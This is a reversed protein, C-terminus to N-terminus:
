RCTATTSRTSRTTAPWSTLRRRWRTPGAAGGFQYCAAVAVDMAVPGALSDGFDLVGTVRDATPWCTTATSTPTFSRADRRRAPAARRVAGRVPRLLQGPGRAPGDGPRSAPRPAPAAAPLEAPGVPPHPERGPSSFSRLAQNLRALTAGIDRRLAATAPARASCRGELYTTMRVLRRGPAARRPRRARPHGAARAPRARDQELHLLLATQFSAQRWPRKRPASRAGQAAAVHRGSDDAPVRRRAGGGAAGGDRQGRLVRPCDGGGPSAICSALRARPWRLRQGSGPNGRRARGPVGPARLPRRRRRLAAAGPRLVRRAPGVLGPPLPPRARAVPRYDANALGERRPGTGDRVASARRNRGRVPVLQGIRHVSRAARLRLCPPRPGGGGARLRTRVLAGLLAAPVRPGRQAQRRHARRRPPSPPVVPVLVGCRARVSSRTGVGPVPPTIVLAKM